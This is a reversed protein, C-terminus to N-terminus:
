SEHHCSEERLPPTLGTSVAGLERFREVLTFLVQRSVQPYEDLIEDVLAADFRLLHVHSSAFCSATRPGGDLLAIEGIVSGPGPRNILQKGMRIELTGDLVLYLGDPPDGERFLLEGTFLEIESGMRAIDVLTRSPVNQFLSSDKMCLAKQLIRPDIEAPTM